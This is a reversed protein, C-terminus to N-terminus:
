GLKRTDTDIVWRGLTTQLEAGSAMYVNNEATLRIFPKTSNQAPRDEKELLLFCLPGDSSNQKLAAKFLDPVTFALTICALDDAEDLRAVYFQV